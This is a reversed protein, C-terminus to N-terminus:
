LLIFDKLNYHTEDTSVELEKLLLFESNRPLIVEKEDRNMSTLMLVNSHAPILIRYLYPTELSSRDKALNAFTRPVTSDYSTSMFGVDRLFPSSTFKKNVGIGRYVYFPTDTKPANKIINSLKEVYRKVARHTAEQLEEKHLTHLHLSDGYIEKYEPNFVYKLFFDKLIPTPTMKSNLFDKERLFMNVYSDKVYRRLVDKDDSSLERIYKEAQSYYATEELYVDDNGGCANSSTNVWPLIEKQASTHTIALPSKPTKGKTELWQLKNLISEKFTDSIEIQEKDIMRLMEIYEDVGYNNAPSNDIPSTLIRKMGKISENFDITDDEILSNLYPVFEEAVELNHGYPCIRQLQIKSSNDYSANKCTNKVNKIIGPLQPKGLSVNPRFAKSSPNSGETRFVNIAVFLFFLLALCKIIVEFVFRVIDSRSRRKGMLPLHCELGEGSGSQNSATIRRRTNRIKIERAEKPFLPSPRMDHQKTFDIAEFYPMYLLILNGLQMELDIVDEEIKKKGDAIKQASEKAQVFIFHVHKAIFLAVKHQLHM